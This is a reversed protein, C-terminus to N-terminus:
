PKGVLVRYVGRGEGMGVVHGAWRVRRSTIVRVITPSSYLDHFEENHLKRCKWTVKDRKPEFVRRLVRNEFVRLKSFGIHIFVIDFCAIGCLYLELCIVVCM